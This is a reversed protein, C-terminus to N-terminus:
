MIEKLLRKALRVEEKFEKKGRHTRIFKKIMRIKKNEDLSLFEEKKSEWYKDEEQAFYVREPNMNHINDYPDLDAGTFDVLSLAKQEVPVAIYWTDGLKFITYQQMKAKKRISKFVAVDIKRFGLKEYNDVLDRLVKPPKQNGCFVYFEEAPFGKINKAKQRCVRVVDEMRQKLFLTFNAKNKDLIDESDPYMLNNRDRFIQTFKEFKEPMAEISYLGLFSVLHVNGINIIDDIDLGVLGFINRYTYFTNRALHQVIQKYPAMEVNSPNRNVRRIYRHRLYCLEFENKFHIKNKDAPPRHVADSM